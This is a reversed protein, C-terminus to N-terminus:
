QELAERYIELLGEVHRELSLNEQAWQICRQRMAQREPASLAFHLIAKEALAVPDGPPFLYGTQGETILEPIGGIASGLAPTGALMSECIVMPSNDYWISPVVTLGAAAYLAKMEYFPLKGLLHVPRPTFYRLERLCAEDGAGAVWLHFGEIYRNLLPLAKALTGLGKTEVIQGAFMMVNAEKNGVVEALKLASAEEGLLGPELGYRLVRFRQRDYGAAVHLDVLKRSPSIFRRVHRTLWAFMQRRLPISGWFDYRRYCDRCHLRSDQPNCLSGDRRFLMNNPCLLWHDHLTLVVPVGLRHCAEFPALSAGSVNHVHVLDPKSRELEKRVLQYVRPDFVRAAETPIRKLSVRHVPIDKFTYHGWTTEPARAYVCLVECEVGRQRLGYCSHSAAIEAGGVYNPPFNNTILLVNM